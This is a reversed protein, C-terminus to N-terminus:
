LLMNAPTPTECATTLDSTVCHVMHCGMVSQTVCQEVSRAVSQGPHVRPEHRVVRAARKRPVGLQAHCCLLLRSPPLAHHRREAGAAACTLLSPFHITLPSSPPPTKERCLCCCLHAPLSFPHHLLLLSSSSSSSSAAHVSPTTNERLVLLLVPTCPPTPPPIIPSSSSIAHLSRPTDREAGAAACNLMFLTSSPPVYPVMSPACPTTSGRM